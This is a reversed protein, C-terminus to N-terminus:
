TGIANNFVDLHIRHCYIYGRDICMAAVDAAINDQQDTVCCMPMIYVPISPPVGARTYTKVAREVEDFDRESPGCVFKLYQEGVNAQQILVEPKIAAEWPEGSASLKPSNSWTVLRGPIAATWEKLYDIFDDTLPVSGNTEILIHRLCKLHPTELFLPITKQRLTPEGGTISLITRLGTEPNILMQNPLAQYVEKALVLEDGEHWMFSFRNDWSYISDCGIEIPPLDQLTNYETPDFGLVENTIEVNDPNNFGRCEFNCKTFRVYTVPHGSYPGEGEISTFVESWQFKAM